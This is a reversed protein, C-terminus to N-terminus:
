TAIATKWIEALGSAFALLCPPTGTAHGIPRYVQTM